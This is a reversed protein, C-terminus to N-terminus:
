YLLKLYDLKEDLNNLNALILNELEEDEAFMFDLILKEDTINELAKDEFKKLEVEKNM